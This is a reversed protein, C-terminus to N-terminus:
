TGNPVCKTCGLIAGYTISAGWTTIIPGAGISSGALYEVILDIGGAMGITARIQNSYPGLAGGTLLDVTNWVCKWDIEPHQCERCVKSKKHWDNIIQETIPDVKQNGTSPPVVIILILGNPDM